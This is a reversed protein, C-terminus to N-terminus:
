GLRLAGGPLQNPHAGGVGGLDSRAHSLKLLMSEGGEPGTRRVRLVADWRQALAIAESNRPVPCALYYGM